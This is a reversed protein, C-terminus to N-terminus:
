DLAQEESERYIEDILILEGDDGLGAVVEAQDQEHKAKEDDDSLHRLAREQEIERTLAEGQRYNLYHMILLITWGVTVIVRDMIVNPHIYHPFAFSTYHLWIAINIAAFVLTHNLMWVKRRYKRQMESEIESFKRQHM